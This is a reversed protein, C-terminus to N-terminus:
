QPQEALDLIQERATRIKEIDTEYDNGSRLLSHLIGQVEQPHNKEAAWLYSLLESAERLAEIRISSRISLNDKDPYVCSGDGLSNDWMMEGPYDPYPLYDRTWTNWQNMGWHLYGTAGHKYCFWGLMEMHWVPHDIMRNLYNDNLPFSSTYVM